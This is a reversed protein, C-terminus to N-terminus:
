DPLYHLYRLMGHMLFAVQLISTHPIPIRHFSVSSDNPYNKTLDEDHRQATTESVPSAKTHVSSSVLSHLSYQADKGHNLGWM